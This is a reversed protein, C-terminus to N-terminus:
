LRSLPRCADTHPPHVFLTGSRVTCRSISGLSHGSCTNRPRRPTCSTATYVSVPRHPDTVSGCPIRAMRLSIAMSCRTLKSRLTTHLADSKKTKHIFVRAHAHEKSRRQEESTPGGYSSRRSSAYDPWMRQTRFFIAGDGPAALREWTVRSCRVTYRIHTCTCTLPAQRLSACDTISTM